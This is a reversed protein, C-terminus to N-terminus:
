KTRNGKFLLILNVFFVAIIIQSIRFQLIYDIWKMEIFVFLALQAVLLLKALWNFPNQNSTRILVIMIILFSLMLAYLVDNIHFGFYALVINLAIYIWFWFSIYGGAQRQQQKQEANNEAQEKEIAPSTNEKTKSNTKVANQLQDKIEKNVFNQAQDQLSKRVGKEMKQTPNELLDGTSNQSSIKLGCSPCIIAQSSVATGCQSCFQM